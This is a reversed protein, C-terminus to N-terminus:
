DCVSNIALEVISCNLAENCCSFLEGTALKSKDEDADFRKVRLLLPWTNFLHGGNSELWVSSSNLHGLHLSTINLTCWASSHPHRKQKSHRLLINTM